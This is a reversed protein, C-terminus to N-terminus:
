RRYPIGKRSYWEESELFCKTDALLAEKIGQEVIVSEVPRSQKSKIDYSAPSHGRRALWIETKKARKAIWLQRGEMLLSNAVDAGLPAFWITLKFESRDHYGYRDHSSEPQFKTISIPWLGFRSWASVGRAPFFSLKPPAFRGGGENHDDDEGQSPTDHHRLSRFGGGGGGGRSSVLSLHRVRRLAEKQQSLWLQIWQSQEPDSVEVTTRAYWLLTTTLIPLISAVILREFGSAASLNVDMGTIKGVISGVVDM